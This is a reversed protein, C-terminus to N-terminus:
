WCVRVCVCVCAGVGVCVRLGYLTAQQQVYRRSKARSMWARTERSGEECAEDRRGVMCGACYRCLCAEARRRGCRSLWARVGVGGASLSRGGAHATSFVGFLESCQAGACTTHPMRVGYWQEVVASPPTVGVHRVGDSCLAACRPELWRQRPGSSAPKPQPPQSSRSCHTWPHLHFVRPQFGSQRM